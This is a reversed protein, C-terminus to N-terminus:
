VSVRKEYINIFRAQPCVDYCVTIGEKTPISSHLRHSASEVQMESMFFKKLNSFCSEQETTRSDSRMLISSVLKSRKAPMIIGVPWLSLATVSLVRFTLIPWLALGSSVPPLYASLREGPPDCYEQGCYCGIWSTQKVSKEM